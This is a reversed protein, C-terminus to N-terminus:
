RLRDMSQVLKEDKKINRFALFTFVLTLLPLALGFDLNVTDTKEQSFVYATWGIGIITVLLVLQAIRSQLVRNKFLFIAILALGGAACFLALIGTDDFLNFAQDKFIESNVVAEETNAFPLGFLGFSAASALFLFISQIRQIM